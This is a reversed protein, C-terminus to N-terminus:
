QAGKGGAAGAQLNLIDPSSHAHQQPKGEGQKAGQAMISPANGKNEKEKAASPEPESSPAAVIIVPKV